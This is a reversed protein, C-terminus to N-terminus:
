IFRGQKDRIRNRLGNREAHLCNEKGTCWELNSVHNNKKNGDIHNIQMAITNKRTIFATAVLRHVKINKAGKAESTFHVYHYGYKDVVKKITIPSKRKYHPRSLSKINGFNSVEYLGEYGPIPLLLEHDSNSLNSMTIQNTTIEFKGCFGRGAITQPNNIQMNNPTTVM